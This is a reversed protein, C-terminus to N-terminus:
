VKTPNRHNDAILCCYKLLQAQSLTRKMYNIDKHVWQINSPIYGVSSDIRDLSASRSKNRNIFMDLPIGSLNCKGGQKEFLNWLEEITITFELNRIKAQGRIHAFYHGTIDGCGKWSNSKNGTFHRSCGCTKNKGATLYHSFISKIKGCKCRCLFNVRKTKTFDRQIVYLDGFTQGSLDLFKHPKWARPHHQSCGCSLVKGGLLNNRWTSHIRNCVPCIFDCKRRDVTSYLETVKIGNILDGNTYKLKIM